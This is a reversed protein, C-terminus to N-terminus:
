KSAHMRTQAQAIAENTAEWGLLACKIRLPFRAVGTFSLADALDDAIKPDSVGRGRSDMLLRFDRLLQTFRSIGHGTVMDHMVSLSALCIACGNGDWQLSTISPDSQSGTSSDDHDHSTLTIRVTIDDGCTPNFQHSQGSTVMNAGTQDPKNETPIPSDALTTKGHPDRAQELIFQQYLEQLGDDNSFSTLSDFANQGNGENESEYM